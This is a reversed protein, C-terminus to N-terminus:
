KRKHTNQASKLAMEATTNKTYIYLEQPNSMHCFKIYILAFLVSQNEFFFERSSFSCLSPHGSKITKIEVIM